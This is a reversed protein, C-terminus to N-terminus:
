AVEPINTIHSQSILAGGCLTEVEGSLSVSKFGIAYQHNPNLNYFYMSGTFYSTCSDIPESLFDTNSTGTTLDFIGIRMKAGYWAELKAKIKVYLYGDQSCYFYKNTYLWVRPTVGTFKANYEAGGSLDFYYELSTTPKTTSRGNLPHIDFIEYLEEFSEDDETWNIDSGNIAITEDDVSSNYNNETEAAYVSTSFLAMTIALIASTIKKIKKM